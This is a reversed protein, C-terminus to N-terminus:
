NTTFSAPVATNVLPLAHKWLKVSNDQAYNANLQISARGIFRKSEDAVRLIAAEVAFTPLANDSEKVEVTGAQNDLVLSCWVFLQEVTNIDSPIQAKDLNM